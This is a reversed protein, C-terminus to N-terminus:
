SKSQQYRLFLMFGSIFQFCHLDLDASALHDPDM